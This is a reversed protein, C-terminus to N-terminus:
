RPLQFMTILETRDRVPAGTEIRSIAKTSAVAPRGLWAVVHHYPSLLGACAQLRILATVCQWWQGLSPVSCFSPLRKCTAVSCPWHRPPKQGPITKTRCCCGCAQRVNYYELARPTLPLLLVLLLGTERARHSLSIQRGNRPARPRFGDDGVVGFSARARVSGPM